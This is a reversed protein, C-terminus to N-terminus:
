LVIELIKQRVTPLLDYDHPMSLRYAPLRLVIRGLAQMHSSMRELDSLDLQFTQKMMAIFTERHSLRNLIVESALIREPSSLVIVALVPIDRGSGPLDNENLPVRKKISYHAMSQTEQEAAFLVGLSDEWLRLGGYSPLAVIQDKDEKVWLCDDSIAPQGARHFDGALTSKGAGSDGLFLILGQELRVASAHVM